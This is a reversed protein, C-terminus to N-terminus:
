ADVEMAAGEDKVPAMQEDSEPSVSLKVVPSIEEDVGKTPIVPSVENKVSLGDRKPKPRDQEKKIEGL